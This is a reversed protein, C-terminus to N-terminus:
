KLWLGARKAKLENKLYPRVSKGLDVESKWGGVEAEWTAPIALM